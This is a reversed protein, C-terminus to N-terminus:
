EIFHCGRFRREDANLNRIVKESHGVIYDCASSMCLIYRMGRFFCKSYLGQFVLTEKAVFVIHCLHM